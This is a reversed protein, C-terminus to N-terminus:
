KKFIVSIITNEEENTILLQASTENIDQLVIKSTKFDITKDEHTLKVEGETKITQINM